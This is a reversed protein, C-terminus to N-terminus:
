EHQRVSVARHQLVRQEVQGAIVQRDLLQLAEALEAGGGGPRRFDPPVGPGSPCPSALATPMAMASDNSACSNLRGPWTITSWRVYTKTPSPQRISPMECSTHESAPVSPRDLSMTM